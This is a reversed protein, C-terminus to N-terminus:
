CKALRRKKEAQEKRMLEIEDRLKKRGEPTSKLISLIRYACESLRVMHAETLKTVDLSPVEQM